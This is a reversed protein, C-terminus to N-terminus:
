WALILHACDFSLEAGLRQPQIGAGPHRPEHDPSFLHTMTSHEPEAAGM